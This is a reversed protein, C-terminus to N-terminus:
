CFLIEEIPNKICKQCTFRATGHHSTKHCSLSQKQQFSKRYKVCSWKRNTENMNNSIM